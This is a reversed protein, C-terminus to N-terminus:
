NAAFGTINEVWGHHGPNDLEVAGEAIFDGEAADGRRGYEGWTWPRKLRLCAEQETLSVATGPYLLPHEIVTIDNLFPAKFTKIDVGLVTRDDVLRVLPLGWQAFGTIFDQSVILVNPDGGGQRPIQLVDRTLDSPKYASGNTPSTILNGPAAASLITRIGKQKPRGNTSVSAAEGKGYFCGTEFDDMLAQLAEMKYQDMPTAFGPALQMAPTTEVTGSVRVVQQYTQCYQDIPVPAVVYGDQNIEGGTRSNGIVKLVDTSGSSAAASTGEVARTVTITNAPLSPMATLEIREGSQTELVDGNALYSADALTLTTVSNNFSAAATVTRPKFRRTVIHFTPSTVPVKRFRTIFPNRNPFWAIAIVSIEDRVQASQGPQLVIGQQSVPM